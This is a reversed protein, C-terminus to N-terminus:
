AALRRRFYEVTKEIGAQLSTSPKWGLEAAALAPRFLVDRADGPRRPAREIPAEFGTAAAIAEYIANVSTREGTGIVYTGGSGGELARVNVAAVDEVFVYDRTQEGDWDIRVGAGALFKNIFIAVVGAEGNPDQRPGYVNGYRLVTYDLGHDSKFFRLYHESVMKTIGYPSLPRQPTTEDFPLADIDGYTAASSAFIVKRVRAKVASELVNLLGIVNVDADYKPDRSGVAVSHQAAHHSVIEPQFERFIRELEPERIDLHVFNAREPVNERRGGGKSWLSDVVVVDHGAAVYSEVIHSGIFGAGGTVIIRM